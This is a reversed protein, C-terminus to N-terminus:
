YTFSKNGKWQVTKYKRLPLGQSHVWRNSGLTFGRTRQNLSLRASLPVSNILKPARKPAASIITNLPAKLAVSDFSKLPPKLAASDNLKLAVSFDTSFRNVETARESGSSRKTEGGKFSIKENPAARMVAADDGEDISPACDAADRGCKDGPAGRLFDPASNSAKGGEGQQRISVWGPIGWRRAERLRESSARALRAYRRRRGGVVSHDVLEGLDFAWRRPARSARPSPTARPTRPLALKTRHTHERDENTPPIAHPTSQARAPQACRRRPSSTSCWDAM